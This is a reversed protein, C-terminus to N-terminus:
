SFNVVFLVTNALKYDNHKERLKYTNKLKERCHQTMKLTSTKSM